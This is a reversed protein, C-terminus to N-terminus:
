GEINSRLFIFRGLTNERDPLARIRFNTVIPNAQVGFTLNINSLIKVKPMVFLVTEISGDKEDVFNIKSTMKFYGKINEGGIEHYQIDSMDFYYDILIPTFKNEEGLYVINDQIDVISIKEVIIGNEIKYIFLSRNLNPKELLVVSGTADTILEERQPVAVPQKNSRSQGLFQMATLSVMGKEFLFDLESIRDWIIQSFNNKGGNASVVDGSGRINSIQVRDFFMFVEDKQYDQGNIVINDTTKLSVEYLEKSGFENLM